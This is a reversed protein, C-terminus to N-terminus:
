IISYKQEKSFNIVGSKVSSIQPSFQGSYVNLIKVKYNGYPLDTPVTFSIYKSSYFVIPIIKFGFQVYTIGLGPSQFNDGTVYVISHTGRQCRTISFRYIIPTFSPLFGPPCGM